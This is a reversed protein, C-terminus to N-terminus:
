PVPEEEDPDEALLHELGSPATPGPRADHTIRAVASDLAGRLAALQEPSAALEDLEDVLTSRFPEADLGAGTLAPSLVEAVYDRPLGLGDAIVRADGEGLLPGVDDPRVRPGLPAAEADSVREAIGLRISRAVEVSELVLDRLGPV